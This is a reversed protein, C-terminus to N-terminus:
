LSGVDVLAECVRDVDEDTLGDYMPISITRSGIREAQTLPFRVEVHPRFWTLQHVARSNVFCDIGKNELGALVAGETTATGGYAPLLAKKMGADRGTLALGISPAEINTSGGLPDLATQTLRPPAALPDLAPTLDFSLAPVDVQM